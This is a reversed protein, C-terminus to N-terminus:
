VASALLFIFFARTIYKLLSKWVFYTLPKTEPMVRFSFYTHSVNCCSSALNSHGLLSQVDSSCLICYINDKFVLCFTMKSVANESINFVSSRVGM